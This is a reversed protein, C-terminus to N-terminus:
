DASKNRGMIRDIKDVTAKIAEVKRGRVNHDPIFVGAIARREVLAKVADLGHYGIMIHRGISELRTSDAALIEERKLLKPPPKAAEAEAAPDIPANAVVISPQPAPAADKKKAKTLPRPQIAM